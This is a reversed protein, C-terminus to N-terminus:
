ARDWSIEFQTSYLQSFCREFVSLKKEEEGVKMKM